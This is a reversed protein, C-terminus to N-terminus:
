IRTRIWRIFAALICLGFIAAAIRGLWTMLQFGAACLPDWLVSLLLCFVVLSGALKDLGRLGVSRFCLGIGWIILLSPIFILFTDHTM